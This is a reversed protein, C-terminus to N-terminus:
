TSTPTEGRLLRLRRPPHVCKVGAQKSWKVHWLSCGSAGRINVL